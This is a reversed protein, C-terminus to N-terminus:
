KSSEYEQGDSDTKKQENNISLSDKANPEHKQIFALIDPYYTPLTKIILTSTRQDYFVSSYRMTLRGMEEAVMVTMTPADQVRIHYTHGPEYCVQASLAHASQTFLVCITFLTIIKKITM